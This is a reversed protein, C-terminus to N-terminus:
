QGAAMGEGAHYVTHESQSGVFVRGKKAESLGLGAVSTRGLM